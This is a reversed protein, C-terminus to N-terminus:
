VNISVSIYFSAKAGYAKQGFVDFLYSYGQIRPYYQKGSGPPPLFYNLQNGYQDKWIFLENDYFYKEKSYHGSGDVPRQVIISDILLDQNIKFSFRVSDNNFSVSYDWSFDVFPLGDM